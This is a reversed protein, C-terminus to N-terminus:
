AVGNRRNTKKMKAGCNWCFLDDQEVEKGCKPCFM